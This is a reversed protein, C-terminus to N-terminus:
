SALRLLLTAIVGLLIPISLMTLGWLRKDISDVRRKVDQLERSIGNRMATELSAIREKLTAEAM